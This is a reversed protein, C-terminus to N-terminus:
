IDKDEYCRVPYVLLYDGTEYQNKMYEQVYKEAILLSDCVAELSYETKGSSTKFPKKVLCIKKMKTKKGKWKIREM